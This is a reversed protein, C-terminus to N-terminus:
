FKAVLRVNVIRSTLYNPVAYSRSNVDKVWSYSIVNNIQLLNFVEGTLWLSKLWPLQNGKKPTRGEKLLLASFGIDVRRYPPIRLTDQYRDYTPPGFPLGSGFVLNLHVKFNENNPIYDQFFLNFMFRQDTPRPIAGPFLVISDVAINDATFGPIITDGLQNLYLTYFDDVLDEKTNMISLSIYSEVGKVLEGNLKMDIGTAFGNANNTAYYRIRVNDLEYPILNSLKKYYAETTFRFPRNWLKLAVNSGLVFHESKQSKINANLVGNLDRLERYFPPQYYYGWAATFTVKRNWNPQLVANVRPSINLENNYTWHTARLGGVLQLKHGNGITFDRNYQVFANSRVSNLENTAKYRESLVLLSDPLAPVNFGASDITRWESLEDYIYEHQVRVGWRVHHENKDFFGRHELASVSANLFNRAHHIFGGIGLTFAENGFNDSGLDREIESLRYAGEIDFTEVESSFFNSAIFELRTYISPTYTGILAGTTNSFRDIEKGDYFVTLQLAQNIYGFDAVRTQPIFTYSNSSINGLFSLKFEPSFTYTLFTQYDLFFPRYAGDTDLGGLISQNNRYRFGHIQTFLGNDSAHELHASAGMIGAALSAKFERPEKYTIDLVSSMKDGYQAQFGGASFSVDQVLDGNIFSLGEQQGSRVLFPRYVQVGNVYVLNEDFNGGRVSYQSSLESTFNVGLGQASLTREFVGSPSPIQEVIKPDIKTMPNLELANDTVEFERIQTSKKQLVFDFTLTDNPTGDILVSQNSYGVFSASLEYRGVPIKLLYKGLENTTTGIGNPQAIVNSFLIPANSTKDRVTGKVVFTDQAFVTLRLCTGVLFLVVSRYNLM